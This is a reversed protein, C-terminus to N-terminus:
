RGTQMTKRGRPFDPLTNLQQAPGGPQALAFKGIHQAHRARGYRKPFRAAGIMDTGMDRANGLYEANTLFDKKIPLIMFTGRDGHCLVFPVHDPEVTRKGYFSPKLGYFPQFHQCTPFVGGSHPRVQWHTNHAPPPSLDTVIWTGPWSPM